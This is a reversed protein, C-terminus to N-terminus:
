DLVDGGAPLRRSNISCEEACTKFRHEDVCGNCSVQRLVILRQARRCRANRGRRATCRFNESQQKISKIPVFRMNPRAVAGCIVAADAADNKGRKGSM